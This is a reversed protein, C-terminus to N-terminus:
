CRAGNVRVVYYNDGDVRRVAIGAARDVAGAVAKFRVSVEVNAAAVPQYIALQTLGTAAPRSWCVSAQLRIM